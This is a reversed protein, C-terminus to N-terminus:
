TTPIEIKGRMFATLTDADFCGMWFEVNWPTAVDLRGELPSGAPLNINPSDKLTFAYPVASALTGTIAGGGSGLEQIRSELIERVAPDTEGALETELTSKRDARFSLAETPNSISVGRVMVDPLGIIGNGMYPSRQIASEVDYDSGRELRVSDAEIKMKVPSIPEVGDGAIVGNRGDFVAGDLFDMKAGDLASVDLGGTAAVSTTSVGIPPAQSRLAVPNQLRIIRDLDPESGFAFTWGGVVRPSDYAASDTALRCQFFGEYQIMIM